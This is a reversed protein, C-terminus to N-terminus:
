RGIKAEGGDSFVIGAPNAGAAAIGYQAFFSVGVLQANNPIAVSVKATGTATTTVGLVVLPSTYLTCGPAGIVTLDISTKAVGAAFFAKASNPASSLDISFSSNITPVGTNSISPLGGGCCIVKYNWAVSTFPGNWTPPGKWYHVNRTGSSMIPLHLSVRNDFVLFFKTNPPLVLPTVNARNWKLTTSVPMTTTRLIKGPAGNAAADYIWFNMNVATGARLKCYLEAGCIVRATNGSNVPLAFNASAGANGGFAGTTNASLCATGTGTGCGNGFTTFTGAQASLMPACFLTATVIPLFSRM